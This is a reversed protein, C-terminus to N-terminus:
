HLNTKVFSVRDQSENDPDRFKAQGVTYGESVADGFHLGDRDLTFERQGDPGRGYITVKEGAIASALAQVLEEFRQSGLLNLKQKITYAEDQKM